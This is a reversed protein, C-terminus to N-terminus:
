RQTVDEAIRVEDGTLGYVTCVLSEIKRGTAEMQRQIATRDVRTKAVALQRHLDLARDSGRGDPLPGTTGPAGEDGGERDCGPLNAAVDCDCDPLNAAGERDRNPKTLRATRPM